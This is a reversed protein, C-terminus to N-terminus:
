GADRNRKEGLGRGLWRGLPLSAVILFVGLALYALNGVLQHVPYTKVQVGAIAEIGYAAWGFTFFSTWLAGALRLVLVASRQYATM